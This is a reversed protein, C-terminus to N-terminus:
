GYGLGEPDFDLRECLSQYESSSHIEAEVDQPVSRRPRFSIVSEKRGSDGSLSHVSFLDRFSEVFSIELEECIQQMVTAPNSIFDEYRFLPVTQYCNLFCHYRHCYDDLTGPRFNIWGLAKLSLYSDLPHRVTIVSRTAFSDAIIQRLSPRKAPANGTCFHSHAHDRVIIHLGASRASTYAADLGTVFVKVLLADDVPRSGERLLRIFDTPFFKTPSVHAQASLPDVESLVQTNPMSALCKSILTGGTCAFHHITRIPDPRAASAEESMKRCQHLLSPLSPVQEPPQGPRRESRSALMEAAGDIAAVFRELIRGRSRTMDTEHHM